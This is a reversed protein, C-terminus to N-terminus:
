YSETILKRVPYRMDDEQQSGILSLYSDTAPTWEGYTASENLNDASFHVEYIDTLNKEKIFDICVQVIRKQLEYADERTSLPNEYPKMEPRNLKWTLKSFKDWDKIDFHKVLDIAKEVNDNKEM